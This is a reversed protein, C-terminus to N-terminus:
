RWRRLRLWLSKRPSRPAFSVSLLKLQTESVIVRDLDTDHFTGPAGGAESRSIPRRLVIDRDGDELDFDSGHLAGAITTGDMMDARVYTYEGKREAFVEQWSRRFYRAPRVAKSVLAMVGALVVSLGMLLAISAALDQVLAAEWEGKRLREAIHAVETSRWYCGAAVVVGTTAIGVGLIELLSELASSSTTVDRLGRTWRLYFYGPVLGLLLLVSVAATPPM